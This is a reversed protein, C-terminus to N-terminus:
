ECSADQSFGDVSITFCIEKVLSYTAYDISCNKARIHSYYRYLTKGIWVDDKGGYQDLYTRAEV